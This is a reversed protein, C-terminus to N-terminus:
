NRMELFNGEVTLFAECKVANIECTYRGADEVKPNFITLQYLDNEVKM